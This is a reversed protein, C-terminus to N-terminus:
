GMNVARLATRGRCAPLVAVFLRQSLQVGGHHVHLVWERGWAGGSLIYNAALTFCVVTGM